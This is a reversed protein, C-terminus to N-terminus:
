RSGDATAPTTETATPRLKKHPREKSRRLPEVLTAIDVGHVCASCEDLPIRWMACSRQISQDGVCGTADGSGAIFNIGSEADVAIIRGAVTSCYLKGGAVAFPQVVASDVSWLSSGNADDLCHLTRSTLWIGRDNIM